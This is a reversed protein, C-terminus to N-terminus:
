WSFRHFTEFTPFLVIIFAASYFHSLYLSLLSPIRRHLPTLLLNGRKTGVEQEKSGGARGTYVVLPISGLLLSLFPAVFLFRFNLSLFSSSHILTSLAPSVSFDKSEGGEVSDM